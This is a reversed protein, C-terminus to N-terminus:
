RKWFMNSLGMCFTLPPPPPTQSLFELLPKQCWFSKLHDSMVTLLQLWGVLIPHQMKYYFSHGSCRFSQISTITQSLHQYDSKRSAKTNNIVHSPRCLLCAQSESKHELPQPMWSNMRDRQWLNSQWEAKNGVPSQIQWVEWGPM